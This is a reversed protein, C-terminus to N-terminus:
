RVDKKWSEQKAENGDSSYFFSLFNSGKSGNYGVLRCKCRRQGAVRYQRCTCVEGNRFGKQNSHHQNVPKDHQNVSKVLLKQLSQVPKRIPENRVQIETPVSDEVSFLKEALEKLEDKAVQKVGVGAENCEVLSLCQKLQKAEEEKSIEELYHISLLLALHQVEEAERKRKFSKGDDLKDALKQVKKMLKILDELEHVQSTNLNRM